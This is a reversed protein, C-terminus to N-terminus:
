KKARVCSSIDAIDVEFLLKVGGRSRTGADNIRIFPYKSSNRQASKKLAELSTSFIETAVASEVYLM